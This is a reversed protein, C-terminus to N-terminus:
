RTATRGPGEAAGQPRDAHRVNLVHTGSSGCSRSRSGGPRGASTSRSTAAPARGVALDSPQRRRRARHRRRLQGAGVVLVGGDRLQSPTATTARTCSCSARTSSPPSRRAHRAGPLAGSAVVVHDAEFRREGAAVCSGGAATPRARRRARGHPGAARLAGRLGRPLRGDRGQDPLVLTPAPFPCGPCATTAARAHVPAPLGLAQALRRRRARPRRPDRVAPRAAGPPVRGGPGGPRRRHDRDRRARSARREGSRSTSRPWRREQARTRHRSAVRRADPTMPQVVWSRRRRPTPSRVWGDSLTTSTPTRPRPPARPSASSRSSTASTATSPASASCSSPPSRGTAHQRAAVLRLVQLERATLGHADDPRRPRALADVRALDPAAGLEAFARRRPRSSSRPRTRTASRAAPARRRLVRARAAEYPADLEQWAELARRLARLATAPTATPSRSPAARAAARAAACSTARAAARRARRARRVRARAADLTAPPSCSRSTRGPAARRADAPETTEASCAGSRPRPAGDRRGPRPAAAGPRAAARLGGRSAERYAEEAADLEGRLRLLEGQATPAGRRGRPPQRRRRLAGPGARRRWRTRGPATSSCSRPATCWAAAAHLRGHRAAARVLPDARRDVGARPAARLGAQCGRDRRLLRHRTVVPSLEGATVPSWRRTSCDSARRSAARARDLLQGQAQVALAFLDRTASASASRPRRACRGVRPRSTARGGRAPVAGPM